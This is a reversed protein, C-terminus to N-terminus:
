SAWVAPQPNAVKAKIEYVEAKLAEFEERTVPSDSAGQTQEGVNGTALGDSSQANTTEDNRFPVEPVVPESPTESVPDAEDTPQVVADTAQANHQARFRALEEPDTIVVYQNIAFYPRIEIPEDNDARKAKYYTTGNDGSQVDYIRIKAAEAAEKAAQEAAAKRAKLRETAARLEEESNLEIVNMANQAGVAIQKQLDDNWSKLQSVESKLEEAQRVAADRKELADDRELTLRGNDTQLQDIQSDKSQLQADREAIKQEYEVKQAQLDNVWASAKEALRLELKQLGNRIIKAADEDIALEELTFSTDGVTFTEISAAVTQTIGEVELQNIEAQVDGYEQQLRAVTAIDNAQLGAQIQLSLDNLKAKLEDISKM